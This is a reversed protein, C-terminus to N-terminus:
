KGPEEEIEHWVSNKLEYLKGENDRRYLNGKKDSYMNYPTATDNEIIHVPKMPDNRKATESKIIGETRNNYINVPDIPKQEVEEHEVAVTQGQYYYQNYAMQNSMGYGYYGGYGGYYGGYGGYYGGMGYPRGYYGMSPFGGSSAYFSINPSNKSKKKAGHGYTSPRPIYRNGYWPKYRYGTGHYVVGHYLFSGMYGATYGVYVIDPTYDYIYVFKINFVPCGPPIKQVEEPYHDAVNWPGTSSESMFWIAQDVAYYVSNKDQIVSGSTNVGYKLTTGEIPEFQPDGDYEIKMTAKQRDVVATQPIANDLAASIAEPTGPVSLRIHAAPSAPPIERFVKPLEEPAVFSWLDREIYKNKYWRGSILIYYYDTYSDFLIEDDSNSISFINEYISKIELAGSTQILEAPEQTVILRPAKGSTESKNKTEPDLESASVALQSIYSPPTEISKWTGTPDTSIYWRGGGNLYYQNDSSSKIIFHPTNVVYQYLESGNINALIPAGDIFVLVAPEKSYFIKPPNNKLDESYENNINITKLGEYFKKLDSNFRWTMSAESILSKLKEINEAKADPFNANVMQIDTFYVENSKVDTQVRAKFWLAGFIPLHEGDFVSFAARADLRNGEFREPEPQYFTLTYDELEIQKPWYSNNDQAHIISSFLLIPLLAIYKIMPKFLEFNM